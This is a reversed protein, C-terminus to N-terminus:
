NILVYELSYTPTIELFIFSVSFFNRKLPLRERQSKSFTLMLQEISDLTSCLCSLCKFKKKEGKCTRSLMAKSM